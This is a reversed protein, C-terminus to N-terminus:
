GISEDLEAEIDVMDLDVSAKDPVDDDILDPKIRPNEVKGNIVDEIHQIEIAKDLSDADIVKSIKIIAELHEKGIRQNPFTNSLVEGLEILIGQLYKDLDEYLSQGVKQIGAAHLIKAAKRQKILPFVMHKDGMNVGIYKLTNLM